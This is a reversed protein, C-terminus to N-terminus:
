EQETRFKEHCSKCSDSLVKFSKGITDMDGGAVASSFDAAADQNAKVAKAFEDKKEWVAAKARTEGFDSDAPFLDGITKALSNMSMAHMKLQDKFIDVKGRVIRSSAGMHGAYAKMVAERYKIIDEAEQAHSVTMGALLLVVATFIQKKMM